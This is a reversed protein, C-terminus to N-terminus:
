IKPLWGENKSRMQQIDRVSKKHAMRSQALFECELAPESTSDDDESLEESQSRPQISPFVRANFPNTPGQGVIRGQSQLDHSQILSSNKSGGISLVPSSAPIAVKKVLNFINRFNRIGAAPASSAVEVNLDPGASPEVIVGDAEEHIDNLDSASPIDLSTSPQRSSPPL